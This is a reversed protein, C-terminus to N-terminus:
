TNIKGNMHKLFIVSHYIIAAIL